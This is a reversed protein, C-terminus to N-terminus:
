TMIRSVEIRETVFGKAKITLNKGPVPPDPSVEISQVQVADGPQGCSSWVWGGTGSPLTSPPWFAHPREAHDQKAAAALHAAEAELIDVFDPERHSEAPQAVQVVDDDNDFVLQSPAAWIATALGAVLLTSATLFKM